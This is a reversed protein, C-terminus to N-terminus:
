FYLSFGFRVDNSDLQFKSEPTETEALATHRSDSYYDTRSYRYGSFGYVPVYEAILSLNRFVYWEVGMVASIGLWWTETVDETKLYSGDHFTYVRTYTRNAYGGAPGLGFYFATKSRPASYVLRQIVVEFSYSNDDIDFGNNRLEDNISVAISAGGRWATQDGTFKKISLTSGEFSRVDFHSDVQFQLSWTGDALASVAKHEQASGKAAFGLFVCFFLGFRIVKLKSKM